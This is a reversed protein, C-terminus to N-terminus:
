GDRAFHQLVQLDPVDETARRRLHLDAIQESDDHGRQHQEERKRRSLTTDSRCAGLQRSRLGAQHGHQGLPDDAAVHCPRQHDDADQEAKRMIMISTFLTISNETPMYRGSPVVNAIKTPPTIRQIVSLSRSRRPRLSACFARTSLAPTRVAEPRIAPSASQPIADGGDQRSARARDARWPAARGIRWAAVVRNGGHNGQGHQYGDHDQDRQRVGAAGFVRGRWCCDHLRFGRLVSPECLFSSRQSGQTRQPSHKQIDIGSFM